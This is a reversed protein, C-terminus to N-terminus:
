GREQLLAGMTQAHAIQEPEACGFLASLVVAFVLLQKTM